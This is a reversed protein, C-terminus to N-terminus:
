SNRPLTLVSGEDLIQRNRFSLCQQSRRIKGGPSAPSVVSNKIQGNLGAETYGLEDSKVMFVDAQINPSM